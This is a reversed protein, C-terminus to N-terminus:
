KLNEHLSNKIQNKTNYNTDLDNFAKLIENFQHIGVSSNLSNISYASIIANTKLGFTNTVTEVRLNQLADSKDLIQLYPLLLEEMVKKFNAIGYDTDLSIIFNDDKNVDIVENPNNMAKNSKYLTISKTNTLKLLDSVNFVFKEM